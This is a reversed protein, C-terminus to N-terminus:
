KRRKKILVTAGIISATTASGAAAGIVLLQESTLLPLNSEVVTLVFESFFNIDVYGEASGKIMFIISHELVHDGGSQIGSTSNVSSRGGGDHYGVLNEVENASGGHCTRGLKVGDIYCIEELYSDYIGTFNIEYQNTFNRVSNVTASGKTSFEFTFNLTEGGHLRYTTENLQIGNCDVKPKIVMGKDEMEAASVQFSRITASLLTSLLAFLVIIQKM